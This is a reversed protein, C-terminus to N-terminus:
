APYRSPALTAFFHTAGTLRLMAPIRYDNLQSQSTSALHTPFNGAAGRGVRELAASFLRDEVNFM